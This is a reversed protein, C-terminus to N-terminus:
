WLLFVRWSIAFFILNQTAGLNYCKLCFIEISKNIKDTLIKLCNKYWVATKFKVACLNAVRPPRKIYCPPFTPICILPLM